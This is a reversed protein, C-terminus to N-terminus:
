DCNANDGGPGGLYFKRTGSVNVAGTTYCAADGPLIEFGTGVTDPWKAVGSTNAYFTNSHYSAFLNGDAAFRGSGMNTPTWNPTTETNDYVEGYWSVRCAQDDIQDFMSGAYFGLWNGNHRLWWNSQFLLIEVPSWWNAPGGIQSIGTLNVGPSYPAGSAVTFGTVVGHWGGINNGTSSGATFFEAQLRLSSGTTGFDSAAGRGVVM